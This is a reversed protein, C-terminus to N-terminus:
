RGNMITEPKTRTSIFLEGAEREISISILDMLRRYVPVSNNSAERLDWELRSIDRTM